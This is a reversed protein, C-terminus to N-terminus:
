PRKQRTLYIFAPFHDSYGGLYEDGSFTRKPYGKWRGSKEELFSERYVEARYFSYGKQNEDLWNPTLIIQDFLSWADNYAMTGIGKKFFAWFPNYMAGAPVDTKRGWAQLVNAVSPSVPDDNLDGMIIIKTSPNLNLLSDKVSKCIRAAKERMPSTRAEGGRRSPWHNVMLSLPEGKFIGSVLLIDRTFKEGGGEETNGGLPVPIPRSSLVKFYRPNYILGVDIGRVDPSEYHVIQYNRDKLLPEKVFDELVQKNEIEAIGLIALGDPTLKTGLQSVVEALKGLKDKYIFTNYRKAGNPTMEEDLKNPTDLTDFLNEFNYFGIAAIDFQAENPNNKQAISFQSIFLLFIFLRM